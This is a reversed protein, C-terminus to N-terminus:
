VPKSTLTVNGDLTYLNENVTVSCTYRGAHSLRLPSYSLTPGLESLVVGDKRWQYSTATAGSIACTLTYRDGVTPTTLSGTLQASVSLVFM